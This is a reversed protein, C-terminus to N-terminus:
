LDFSMEGNGKSYQRRTIAKQVQREIILDAILLVAKDTVNHALIELVKQESIDIRYLIWKLHEPDHSLLFELRKALAQRMQQLMEQEDPLATNVLEMEFQEDIAAAASRYIDIDIVSFM